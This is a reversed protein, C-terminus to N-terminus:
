LLADMPAITGARQPCATFLASKSRLISQLDHADAEAGDRKSALGQM